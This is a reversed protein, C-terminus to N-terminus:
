MWSHGDKLVYGLFRRFDDVEVKSFCGNYLNHHYERVGAGTSPPTSTIEGVVAYFLNEIDAPSLYELIAVVFNHHCCRLAWSGPVSGCGRFTLLCWSCHEWWLVMPVIGIYGRSGLNKKTFNSFLLTLVRRWSAKGSRHPPQSTFLIGLSESIYNRFSEFCKELCLEAALFSWAIPIRLDPFARIGVQLM